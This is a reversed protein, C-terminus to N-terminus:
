ALGFDDLASAFGDVDDGLIDAIARISDLYDQQEPTVEKPKGKCCPCAMILSRRRRFEEKAEHMVYDFDWPEGGRVSQTL